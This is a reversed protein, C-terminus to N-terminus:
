LYTESEHIKVLVYIQFDSELDRNKFNSPRRHNVTIICIHKSFIENGDLSNESSQIMMCLKDNVM